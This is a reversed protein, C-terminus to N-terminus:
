NRKGGRCAPINLRLNKTRLRRSNQALLNLFGTTQRACLNRSNVLLGRNGGKMVLIFKNVAVDPTKPFVTKLRGNQSSIVGRLRINVQGRLDVLLDPLPNDSSTLYVPGKLRGALLPSTARAHGYIAAKPCKNAALQVRTCITRIHSQDLITARPLIFAARRLNADDKRADFIARFKPNRARKTQNKGGFIRAHFKPKFRLARCDTMQTRSAREAKQWKSPDNPDGGGGFIESVIFFPRRCTTPNVTFRPRFVNVEIRSIDLKAGGFVHPIADSVAHVEATEPDINLAVRVVVNGLDYPGALAPTVFVLSVPAGKYPGALHVNGPVEFPAGSGAHITSTGVFSSDPCAPVGSGSNGAEGEAQAINGEPCYELGKLRAVMGPPLHVDIKRLEQEGAHRTFVADFPSFAGAKSQRTGAHYGPNLPRDALTNACAGGLPSGTLTFSSSPHAATGPRAWPEMSSTTTHPGCTDPSTLAGTPGGDIHVKVSEFPVQPLGDPLEGALPGVIEDSLVATLKGTVPNAKVNGVLRAFIGEHASKAEALIRFLEGSQPDRSKQEGVYVEGELPEALPPSVVEVTGIVSGSPCGNTEVREGKNFQDDTCARLGNAASPNIGMGEPLSVEAKRLHSQSQNAAGGESKPDFPLRATVTAAAPSDSRETGAEAEISPEFPISECGEPQVRPGENAPVRPLPSEVATVGAPFNPHPPEAYSEARFWTSYLHEFDPDNPDFCTTPTTLYTGNGAAAGETVLRSILTSLGSAEATNLLRITFSEHFDSEWAVETELFVPIKGNVVFGLKAPEGEEPVLNYVPIETGGPIPPIVFGKPVPGVGELEVGAENTVLTIKQTGTKTSPDCAPVFTGPVPQNLFEALSCRSPTAEPNVTLGPPLDTRLTRITHEKIDEGPIPALFAPGPIPTYPAHEIIYQTFGVPPHGSATNFFLDPTEVSCRIPPPGEPPLGPKTDATCTGAQFGSDFSEPTVPQIIDTTDARAASAGFVLAFLAAALVLLGFPRPQGRM